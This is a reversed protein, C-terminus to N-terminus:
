FGWAWRLILFITALVVIIVILRPMIMTRSRWELGFALILFMLGASVSLIGTILLGLFITIGGVVAFVLGVFISRWDVM